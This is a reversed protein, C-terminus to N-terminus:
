KNSFDNLSWMKPSCDKINEKNKENKLWKNIVVTTKLGCLLCKELSNVIAFLICLKYVRVLMYVLSKGM